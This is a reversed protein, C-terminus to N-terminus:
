GALAKEIAAIAVRRSTINAGPSLKEALSKLDPYPLEVWNPPVSDLVASVDDSSGGNGNLETTETSTTLQANEASSTLTERSQAPAFAERSPMIPEDGHALKAAEATTHGLSLAQAYRTRIAAVRPDFRAHARKENLIKAV